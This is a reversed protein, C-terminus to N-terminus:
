DVTFPLGDPVMRQSMRVGDKTYYIFSELIEITGPVDPITTVPTWSCLKSPTGPYELAVYKGDHAGGFIQGWIKTTDNPFDEDPVIASIQFATGQAMKPLTATNSTSPEDRIKVGLIALVVCDYAAQM